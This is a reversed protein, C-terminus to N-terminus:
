ASGGRDQPDPAAVSKGAASGAFLRRRSDCDMCRHVRGQADGYVRRFGGSVHAGCNRCDTAAATLAAGSM